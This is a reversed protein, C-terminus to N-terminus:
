IEGVIREAEEQSTIGQIIKILADEQLTIMGKKKAEELLEYRTAKRSILDEMGKASFIEFIGIRGKYGNLCYPCGKKNPYGIKIEEIKPLSIRGKIKRYLLTIKKLLDSSPKKFIACHPCLRRVLRQAIVINLSSALIPPEIGLDILRPIAGVADNTHLTSLVLHGTLSANIAIKATESDRIEGVLIIDPDHRLLSRLGNAFTYGAKRNVQTQDIGALRYEIPDEITIIKKTPSQLSRLIAYLTTTKGSGTPGTNLILGNPRKIEQSITKLDDDRLGLEELGFSISEPDLIRLVIMEGYESPVDSARIEIIRKQWKITFRGDQPSTTINLKMKSLLKIRTLLKRYTPLDIEAIKHLLGDLRFRCIAKKEKPELHVDSANMEIGATLIIELLEGIKEGKFHEIKEKLSDLSPLKKEEKTSIELIGTIKKKKGPLLDYFKWGHNLSRKSVIYISLQYKKELESLIKKTEPLSSDFCALILNKGEKRLPVLLGKRAKEEPLIKLASFEIPYTLLEIYEKNLKLARFRADREEAEKQYEALKESLIKQSM